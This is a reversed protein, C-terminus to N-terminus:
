FDLGVFAPFASLRAVLRAARGNGVTPVPLDTQRAPDNWLLLLLRKGAQWVGHDIAATELKVWDRSSRAGCTFSFPVDTSHRQPGQASVDVSYAKPDAFVSIWSRITTMEEPSVRSSKDTENM